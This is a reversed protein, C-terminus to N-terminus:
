DGRLELIEEVVARYEREVDRTLHRPPTVDPREDVEARLVGNQDTQAAGPVGRHLALLSVSGRGNKPMREAIEAVVGVQAYSGGQRPILLVRSDGVLKAPLSVPMGPFVVVDDVSVLRLTAMFGVKGRNTSSTLHKNSRSYQDVHLRSLRSHVGPLEKHAKEEHM